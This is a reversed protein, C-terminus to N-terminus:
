AIWQGGSRDPQSADHGAEVSPTGCLKCDDGLHSLDVRTLMSTFEEVATHVRRALSSTLKFEGYVHIPAVM